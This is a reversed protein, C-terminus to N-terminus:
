LAAHQSEAAATGRLARLAARGADFALTLALQDFPTSALRAHCVIVAAVARGVGGDPLQFRM